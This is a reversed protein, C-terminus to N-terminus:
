CKFDETLKVKPLKEIKKVSVKISNRFDDELQMRLSRSIERSHPFEPLDVIAQQNKVPSKM